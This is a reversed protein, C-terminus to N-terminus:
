VKLFKRLSLTSGLAGLLVGTGIFYPLMRLLKEGPEILSIVPIETSVFRYLYLYAVVIIGAALAAGILGIIMGEIFFPWRIYWDSAGVYKMVSIERHRAFVALKVTNSIIVISIVGLFIMAALAATRLMKTMKLIKSTEEEGYTVKELIDIRKIKEAVNALQEPKEVKIKLFQPLINNDEIGDFIADNSDSMREKLLELAEEKSVFTVEEVGAFARVAKIAEEIQDEPVDEAFYAAIEIKSEVDETMHNVNLGLLLFFGLLLLTFLVASVSAITMLRNRWLSSFAEKFFRILSRMTM